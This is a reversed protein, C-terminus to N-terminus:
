WGGLFGCFSAVWLVSLLFLTIITIGIVRYM